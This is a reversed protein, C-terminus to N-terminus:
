RAATPFGFAKVIQEEYHGMKTYDEWAMVSITKGRTIQEHISGPTFLSAALDVEDLLKQGESQLRIGAVFSRCLSKGATSLVGEAETLRTPVPEAIKFGL